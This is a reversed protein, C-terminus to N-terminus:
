KETERIELNLKQWLYVNSDSPVNLLFSLQDDKKIELKKRVGIKFVPGGNIRGLICLFGEKPAPYKNLEVASIAAPTWSAGDAAVCGEPHSNDWCIVGDTFIEVDADGGARFFKWANRENPNLSLRFTRTRSFLAPDTQRTEESVSGLPKLELPKPKEPELLGPGLLKLREPRPEIARKELVRVEPTQQWSKQWELIQSATEPTVSQLENRTTPHFGPQDFLDFGGDRKKYFWVKPKGTVTDFFILDPRYEIARPAKLWMTIKGNTKEAALNIFGHTQPFFLFVTVLCLIAMTRIMAWKPSVGARFGYAVFGFAITAFLLLVLPIAAPANQIPVISFYIMVQFIWFVIAAYLQAVRKIAPVKEQGISALTLIPLAAVLLAIFIFGIIIISSKLPWYIGFLAFLISVGLLVFTAIASNKILKKLGNIYISTPTYVMDFIMGVAEKLALWSEKIM